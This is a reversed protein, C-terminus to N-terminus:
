APPALHERGEVDTCHRSWLCTENIMWPQAPVCGGATLHSRADERPRGKDKRWDWGRDAPTWLARFEEAGEQVKQDGPSGREMNATVEM